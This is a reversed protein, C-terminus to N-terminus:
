LRGVIEAVLEAVQVGEEWVEDHGGRLERGLVRRGTQGKEGDEWGEEGLRRAMVERQEEEVLEDEPSHALVVLRGSPWAAASYAGSIPSAVAYVSPATTSTSASDPGFAGAVIDRYTKGVAPPATHNALLLPLSYIGALLLLAELGETKAATQPSAPTPTSAPSPSPPPHHKDQLGIGAVVQLWMTAGCSHGVGMWRRMGYERKLYEVARAVDRVHAPHRVNRQPDDPDSPDTAHNPYPSLRYNISAIGALASLTEPHAAELRRITPQISSSSQLPDRWAGGHLYLLWLTTSPNSLSPPRPLYISLTRLPGSPPSTYPISPLH